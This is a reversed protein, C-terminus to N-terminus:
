EDEGFKSGNHLSPYVDNHKKIVGAGGGGERDEGQHGPSTM